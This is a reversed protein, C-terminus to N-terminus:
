QRKIEDANNIIRSKDTDSLEDDYRRRKRIYISLIKDTLNLMM